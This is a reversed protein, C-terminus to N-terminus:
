FHITCTHILKENTFRLEFKKPVGSALCLIDTHWTHGILQGNKVEIMITKFWTSFDRNNSGDRNSPMEEIEVRYSSSM